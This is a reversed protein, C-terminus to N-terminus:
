PACRPQSLPVQPESKGGSAIHIASPGREFPPVVGADKTRYPKRYQSVAPWPIERRTSHATEQEHLWHQPLM